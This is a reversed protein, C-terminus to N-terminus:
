IIDSIIKGALIGNTMGWTNYGTALFLNTDIKGILPLYDITMIDHNSWSYHQQKSFHKKLYNNLQKEKNKDDINKHLDNSEAVFILYNDIDNHYRISLVKKDINIISYPEFNEVKTAALYSKEINTKFPFFYPKLFFPYHCAM